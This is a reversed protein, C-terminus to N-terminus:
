KATRTKGRPLSKPEPGSMEQRLATTSPSWAARPRLAVLDDSSRKLLSACGTAADHSAAMTSDDASAMM